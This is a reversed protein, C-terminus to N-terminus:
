SWEAGVCMDILCAHVCVVFFVCSRVEPCMAVGNITLEHAEAICMCHDFGTIYVCHDFGTIYVCHDFWM